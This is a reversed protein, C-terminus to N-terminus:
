VNVNPYSVRDNDFKLSHSSESVLRSVRSEDKTLEHNLDNFSKMDSVPLDFDHNIPSSNTSRLNLKRLVQHLLATNEEVKDRLEEIAHLVQVAFFITYLSYLTCACKSEYDSLM